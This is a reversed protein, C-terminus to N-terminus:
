QAAGHGATDDAAQPRDVARPASATLRYGSIRVVAAFCLIWVATVANIWLLHEQGPGTALFFRFLPLEWVTLVGILMLVVLTAPLSWRPLLAALLLPVTTAIATLALAEFFRWEGARYFDPVLMPAVVRGVFLMVSVVVMFVMMQRISFRRTRPPLHRGAEDWRRLQVGCGRAVAGLLLQVLLWQQLLIVGLAAVARPSGHGARKLNLGLSAFLLATWIVSLPLRWILPLPGFASWASAVTTQGFMTGLICGVIIWKLLESPTTDPHEVFLVVCGVVILPAAGLYLAYQRPIM